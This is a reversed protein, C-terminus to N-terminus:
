EEVPVLSFKDTIPDYTGLDLWMKVFDRKVEFISDPKVEFADNIFLKAEGTCCRLFLRPGLQYTRLVEFGPVSSMKLFQNESVLFYRPKPNFKEFLNLIDQLPKPSSSSWTM